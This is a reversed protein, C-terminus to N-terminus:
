FLWRQDMFVSGDRVATKTPVGIEFVAIVVSCWPALRVLPSVLGKKRLALLESPRVQSLHLHNPLILQAALGERVSAPM